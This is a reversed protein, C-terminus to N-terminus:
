AVSSVCDVIGHKPLEYMICVEKKKKKGKKKLFFLLEMGGDRERERHM